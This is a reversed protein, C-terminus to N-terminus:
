DVSTYAYVIGDIDGFYLWGDSVALGDRPTVGTPLHWLPTGDLANLAFIDGHQTLVYLDDQVRVPSGMVYNFTGEPINHQWNIDGTTTDFAYIATNASGFYVTDGVGLMSPVWNGTDRRWSMEGTQVDVGIAYDEYAIYALSSETAYMRKIFGDMSEYTWLEAANEADLAYIRMPGGEDVEIEPAYYSGGAYVVEGFLTPTQLIYNDTEFSWIESGDATNLVFLKAKGEPNSTLKPGVFTTPVYLPNGVVLPRVQVNIGLDVDWRTKGSRADLALLRGDELAVFIYKGDTTYAREWVDLESELTWRLEGTTADLATLTGNHPVFVVVDGVRLPTQNIAGGSDFRWQEVLNEGDLLIESDLGSTACGTMFFISLMSAILMWWFIKTKSDNGLM